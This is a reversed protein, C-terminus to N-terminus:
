LEDIWSVDIKKFENEILKLKKDDKESIWPKIREVRKATTYTDWPVLLLPVKKEDAMEIIRTPPVINNTLVICSTNNELSALILDTRDGSTILLKKPKSFLPNKIADSISMAGIFVNEIENSLVNEGAIIKAFLQDALFEATFTTLENIYPIVGLIDIGEEVLKKSNVEEWDEMNKIKNLIAGVIRVNKSDALERCRVADDFINEDNGSFIFLIPANLYRAISFSDLHVSSGYVIDKCGEIFVIDKGRSIYTFSEKVKNEIGERDYMYMLKSHEFGISMEEPEEDLKFIRAISVSDHDWLRKKRYYIRDGFPKMYGIKVDMRKGIGIISTTKGVDERASAVVIKKM